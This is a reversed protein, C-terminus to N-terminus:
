GSEATGSDGSGLEFAKALPYSGAQLLVRVGEKPLGKGDNSKKLTRIEERARELTAFPGDNKDESPVAVTGSWADNGNGAVHLAIARSPSPLLRLGLAVVAVVRALRLTLMRFCLVTLCASALPTEMMGGPRGAARGQGTRMGGAPDWRE